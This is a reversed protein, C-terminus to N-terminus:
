PYIKPTSRELILTPSKPKVWEVRDALSLVPMAQSTTQEEKVEDVILGCRCFLFM